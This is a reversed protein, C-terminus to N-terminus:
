DWTIVFTNFMHLIMIINEFNKKLLNKEVKLNM